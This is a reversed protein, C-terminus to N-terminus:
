KKSLLVFPIAFPGFVGGLVGWFVPNIGNNKAVLHCIIASVVFILAIIAIYM